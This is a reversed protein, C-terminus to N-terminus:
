QHPKEEVPKGEEPPTDDDDLIKVETGFKQYDKFRILNRREFVDSNQRATARVDSILPLLYKEDNITVWDYDILRTVSRISFTEPLETANSEVRLVRFSERDIWVRGAMGAITTEETFGSSTIVQKAKNSTISYDFVVARRNRITDTDVLKFKTESEPKFIIALITVFEGTSSTGGTEEYSQKSTSNTQSVGNVSLVKYDEQGSSRYSVAVVLRDLNRFNNTGAYAASRQIQQKVVFDPMEDVAALTNERTKTLVQASEKESPLQATNPNQRRRESEELTRQLEGDNKSKTRTLGRLGDNLEFGIGRKRIAGILEDRRGPNKQLDYLMKVYESQTLPKQATEQAFIIQISLIIIISISFLKKM